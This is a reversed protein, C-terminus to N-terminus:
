KDLKEKVAKNEPDLELSKRWNDTAKKKDGKAYYADGLHDLVVADKVSAAAKELYKIAPGYQNMRYLVWGYSDLYAANEPEIKLAKDILAQASDLKIGKEAFMYGLYNLAPAYEPWQALLQQFTATSSDFQGWREQVSGVSYWLRVRSSDDKVKSMGARFTAIARATDKAQLFAFALNTWNSIVTDELEVLRSFNQSALQYQKRELGIQGMFYYDAALGEGHEIIEKFISESADLSDLRFYIMGLRRRYRGDAPRLEVLKKAYPLAPAVSDKRLWLGLMQYNLYANEKDLELGRKILAYSTDLQQDDMLLDALFSRAMVNDTGSDVGLSSEFASKSKPRDGTALYLRGLENWLATSSSIGTLQELAWITSATDNSRQYYEALFRLAYENDPELTALKMFADRAGAGDGIAQYCTAQFRYFDTDRTTIQNLVALADDFARLNYYIEALAIRITASEPFYRLAEKFSAIAGYNDGLQRLALGQVYGFVARSDLGIGKTLDIAKPNEPQDLRQVAWSSSTLGLLLLGAVALSTLVRRIMSEQVRKKV